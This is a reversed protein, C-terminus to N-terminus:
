SYEDAHFFIKIEINKFEDGDNESGIEGSRKMSRLEVDDINTQDHEDAYKSIEIETDEFENGNNENGAKRSEKM